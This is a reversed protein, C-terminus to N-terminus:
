IDPLQVHLQPKFLGNTRCSGSPLCLHPETQAKYLVQLIFLRCKSIAYLISAYKLSVHPILCIGVQIPLYFNCKYGLTQFLHLLDAYFSPSPCQCCFCRKALVEDTKGNMLSPEITSFIFKSM